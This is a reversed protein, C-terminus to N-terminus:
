GPPAPDPPAGQPIAPGVFCSPPMRRVVYITTPPSLIDVTQQCINIAGNRDGGGGSFLLSPIPLPTVNRHLSDRTVSPTTWSTSIRESPFATHLYARAAGSRAPSVSTKVLLAFRIDSETRGKRRKWQFSNSYADRSANGLVGQKEVVKDSAM